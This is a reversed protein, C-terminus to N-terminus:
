KKSRMAVDKWFKRTVQAEKRYDSSAKKPGGGGMLGMTLRQSIIAGVNVPGPYDPWTTLSYAADWGWEQRQALSPKASGDAALWSYCEKVIARIRDPDPCDKLCEAPIEESASLPARGPNFTWAEINQEASKDAKWQKSAAELNVFRELCFDYLGFAKLLVWMWVVHAVAIGNARPDTLDPLGEYLRRLAGEGGGCVEDLRAQLAKAIDAVLLHHAPDEWLGREFISAVEDFDSPKAAGIVITNADGLDKNWQYSAQFEIPTIDPGLYRQLLTSPQYLKGGKDFPSIIFVGMDMERALSVNHRHGFGGVGDPCGSGHYDGFVGHSHINVYSFAGSSIAKAVVQPMGHTSFGLHHVFGKAVLSQVFPMLSDKGNEFTWKYHYEFNLGHLSLLDIHGLISFLSWSSNWQDQFEKISGKLILKTQLVFDKRSIEGSAIMSKLAAAFQMESTGYFRATEFHNIGISLAKRITAILNQQCSSSIASM